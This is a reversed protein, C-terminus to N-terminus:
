VTKSPGAKLASIDQQNQQTQEGLRGMQDKMDGQGEQAGGAVIMPNAAPAPTQSQGSSAVQAEKNKSLENGNKDGGGSGLAGGGKSAEGGALMPSGDGRIAGLLEQHKKNGDFAAADKDAQAKVGEGKAKLMGGGKQGLHGVGSMLKQGGYTSALGGLAEVKGADGMQPMQQGNAGMWSLAHQPLHDILQFSHNACIYIISVYLVSYVIKSMSAHGYATGGAGSVAIAYAYNLFSVSILFVVLGCILGFVTLIPRLFLNFVFFYANRAQQGPLGDGEPNLHALAVLPVAIIAEVIAAVWSLVAFFFRMFPMLPVLFALTFGCGFFIMAAFNVMSGAGSIGGGVVGLLKGAGPLVAGGYSAAGGVISGLMGIGALAAAVNLNAHGLAAMQAFPDKGSIQIGLKFTTNGNACTAGTAGSTWVGSIQALHDIIAFVMDTANGGIGGPASLGVMAACQADNTNPASGGGATTPNTIAKNEYYDFSAMDESVKKRIDWQENTNSTGLIRGFFNGNQSKSRQDDQVKLAPPETTPLSDASAASADAQLRAITNLFSGAMVWGYPEISKIASGVPSNSGSNQSTIKAMETQINSQYTAVADQFDSNLTLQQQTAAPAATTAGDPPILQVIESAAKQFASMSNNIANVQATAAAAGMTSSSTNSGSTPAGSPIFYWGCIDTDGFASSSYSYKTGPIDGLTFATGTPSNMNSASLDPGEGNNGLNTIRQNWAAKCAEMRIINVAVQQVMPAAPPAAVGAYAAMNELFGTWMQSAMGSGLEAMKIVIWQGCNLGGSIPVLLGIAVVLRIPAWVQNARKGMPVGHHATEVVMSALHYFLIIAAVILIADSYFGLASVLATQLSLGGAFPDEAAATVDGYTDTFTPYTGGSPSNFLYDMWSQALDKSEPQFMSAGTVQAHAHGIFLSLLAFIAMLGSFAMMGTVAFFILVKSLGERSFELSRWATSLILFLSLQANEDKLAPHNKPFMGYMSFVMAVLHLFVRTTDRMPTLAPGLQPNFLLGLVSRKNAKPAPASDTPRPMTM